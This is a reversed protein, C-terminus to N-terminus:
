FSPKQLPSEQAQSLRLCDAATVAAEGSLRASSESVDARHRVRARSRHGDAPGKRGPEVQLALLPSVTLALRSCAPPSGLSVMPVRHAWGGLETEAAGCLGGM